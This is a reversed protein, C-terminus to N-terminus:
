FLPLQAAPRTEAESALETAPEAVAPAVATAPEAVAPAVATAPETVAPAVATAPEAAIQELPAGETGDV